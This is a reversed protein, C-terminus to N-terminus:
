LIPLDEWAKIIERNTRVRTLFANRSEENEIEDAVRIVTNYAKELYLRAEEPKELITLAM